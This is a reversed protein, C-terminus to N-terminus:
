PRNATYPTKRDSAHEEIGTDSGSDDSNSRLAAGHCARSHWRRLMAPVHRRNNRKWADIMHLVGRMPTAPFVFASLILGGHGGLVEITRRVEEEITEYDGSQLTREANVGGWFAKADGLREFLSELSGGQLMKPDIGQLVDVQLDKLGECYAGHGEPLLYSVLKGASKILQAQEQICPRIYQNWFRPGWFTPTEYWGRYRIVDVPLDLVLELLKKAWDHFIGLFESVFHPDDYLQTLFWRIDCFWQFADGVITRRVLTLVDFREAYELIQEADIRWQDLAHGEAPRILYRLKDLDERGKVWPEIRRPINWDDFLEVGFHQRKEIGWITPVWPVHLYHCWDDTERVVQRLVGAPTHYEKTILTERGKKERWTKVRVDPHPQPDPLWIDIVPDLGLALMRQTREIQDHWFLPEALIPGQPLYPSLPVHEPGERRIAALMRQRSSMQASM